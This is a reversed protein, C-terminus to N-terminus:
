KQERLYYNMSLTEIFKNRLFENSKWTHIKSLLYIYNQDFYEDVIPISNFKEMHKTYASIIALNDLNPAITKRKLQKKAFNLTINFKGWITLLDIPKYGKGTKFYLLEPWTRKILEAYFLQGKFRKIPNHTFFENNVGALETKLLEKIFDFNLYPTIVNVYKLQPQLLQLGFFKRFVEDFIYKYFRQSPNLHLILKKYDNLYDILDNLENKFSSLNLFKLSVANKLKEIWVDNEIYKFYDVLTPSTFQGIIHAARFLESGFLGSVLHNTKKALVRASYPWHVQLFNTSAGSEIIINCGLKWFNDIYEESDLNIPFFEIGLKLAQERPLTLDENDETGFSFTTFEKNLSKTLAVLTRGDFGSTFSIFFNDNIINRNVKIFLDILDSISEKWPVPNNVFNKEIPDFERIQLNGNFILYSNSNILKIEKYITENSFSYNFLNQQLIYQKNINIRPAYKKILGISSSIIINKDFQYIYIPLINFHGNFIYLKKNEIFIIYYLSTNIYNRLIIPNYLNYSIQKTNLKAGIILLNKSIFYNNFPSNFYIINDVINEEIGNKFSIDHFEGFKLKLIFDM